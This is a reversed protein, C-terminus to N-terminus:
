PKPFNMYFFPKPFNRYDLSPRERKLLLGSRDGQTHEHQHQVSGGGGTTSAPRRDFFMNYAFSAELVNSPVREKEKRTRVNDNTMLKVPQEFNRDQLQLNM